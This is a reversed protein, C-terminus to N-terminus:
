PNVMRARTITLREPKRIILDPQRRKVGKWWDKGAVFMGYGCGIKARKCLVNTRSLIQKRTLSIGRSSAMKISSVINTELEPPIHPPLGRHVGVEFWGSLRDGLTSRPVKLHEAAKRVSWGKEHMADVAAQLQAEDYRVLQGKKTPIFTKPM